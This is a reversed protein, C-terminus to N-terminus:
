TLIMTQKSSGIMITRFYYIFGHFKNIWLYWFGLIWTILFKIVGYNDYAYKFASKTKAWLFDRGESINLNVAPLEADDESSM